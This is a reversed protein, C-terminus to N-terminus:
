SRSRHPESPATEHERKFFDVSSLIIESRREFSGDLFKQAARQEIRERLRLFQAERPEPTAKFPTDLDDMAVTSVACSVEATDNMMTFIVVMRNFDYAQFAGSTLSM